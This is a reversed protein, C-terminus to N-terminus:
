PCTNTYFLNDEDFVGACVTTSENIVVAAGGALRTAGIYIFGTSETTNVTATSAIITSNDITVSGPSGMIGINSGSGTTEIRSGTVTWGSSGWIGVSQTTGNRASVSVNSFHTFSQTALIGSVQGGGDAVATVNTMRGQVTTQGCGSGNSDTVATSSLTGTATIVAGDIDAASCSNQIGIANPGSAIATINRLKPLFNFTNQNIIASSTDFAGTAIATVNTLQSIHTTGSGSIAFAYTALGTNEVTLNRLESNTATAVTAPYGGLVTAGGATLRTTNQGSGEIDVYPRMVLLSSTGVVGLDYVGPAIRILCPNSASPTGCWSDGSDVNAMADLPSSYDGDFIAVTAVKAVGSGAPGAEGQIGQLGQPGAPGDPGTAGDVGDVGNAGPLGQIGQTGDAGPAGPIGQIGQAGVPGQPGEPGTVGPGIGLQGDANVVVQQATVDASLDVGSIGAVYAQNQKLSNGIRIAGSDGLTGTNGIMINNDSNVINEGSEVGIAINYSGSGITTLTRQGVATNRIGTTNGRLSRDGVGTNAGGSLNQELAANGLAVNESGSDNTSLTSVGVATNNSGSANSALARFGVATHNNTTTNVMLADKGIATNNGGATNAALANVGFASNRIGDNNSALASSGGATNGVGFSVVGAPGQAGPAGDAGAAGQPGAPGDPGTAGDVGDVGNAGPLGQIGQTGDAGPAGPIGQIGQAGVPGQPGEPGQPLPIIGGGLGAIDSLILSIGDTSLTQAENAPDIDGGELTSVRATLEAITAEAISVLPTSGTVNPDAASAVVEGTDNLVYRVYLQMITNSPVGLSVSGNQASGRQKSSVVSGDVVQVLQIEDKKNLEGLTDLVVSFGVEVDEGAVVVINGNNDTANLIQLEVTADVANATGAMMLFLAGSWCTLSRKIRSHATRSRPHHSFFSVILASMKM